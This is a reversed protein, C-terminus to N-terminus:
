MELARCIKNRSRFFLEGGRTLNQFGGCFFDIKNELFYFSDDTRDHATLAPRLGPFSDLCFSPSVFFFLIFIREKRSDGAGGAAPLTLRGGGRM